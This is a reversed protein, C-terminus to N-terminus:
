KCSFVVGSAGSGIVAQSQKVVDLCAATAELPDAHPATHLLSFSNGDEQQDYKALTDTRDRTSDAHLMSASVSSM